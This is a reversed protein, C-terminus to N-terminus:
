DTSSNMLNVNFEAKKTILGANPTRATYFSRM